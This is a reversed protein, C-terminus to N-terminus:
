ASGNFAMHSFRRAEVDYEVGFLSPGGDCIREAESRWRDPQRRDIGMGAPMFNGYIFRRGGRLIGGYQRRWGQPARALEAAHPTGALAAPLAAELAAIDAAAPQWTGEGAPPTGRSCQRLLSPVGAGDFIAVDAPLAPDTPPGATRNAPQSANGCAAVLSLALLAM